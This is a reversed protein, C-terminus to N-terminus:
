VTRRGEAAKLARALKIWKQPLADDPRIVLAATYDEIAKDYEGKWLSTMGRDSLAEPYDPKIRLAATFDMIAKDYKARICYEIGRYLYIHVKDKKDATATYVAKNFAEIAAENEGKKSYARGLVLYADALDQQKNIADKACKLAREFDGTGIFAKGRVSVIEAGLKGEPNNLLLRSTM